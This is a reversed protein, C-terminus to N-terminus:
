KNITYHATTRVACAIFGNIIPKFVPRFPAQQSM